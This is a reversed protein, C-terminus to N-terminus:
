WQGQPGGRMMSAIHSGVPLGRDRLKSFLPMGVSEIKGEKDLTRVLQGLVATDMEKPQFGVHANTLGFAEETLQVAVDVRRLRAAGSILNGYAKCDPGGGSAKLQGFVLLAADINDDLLCACMLCSLVPSNVYFNYQQTMTEVAAFAKDLQRRRGWMKVIIGLTFNTPYIRYAELNEVLYEASEFDSARICGDLLTNFIVTDGAGARNSSMEDFVKFAMKLKGTTCYAKVILSTTLDDPPCGDAKMTEQLRMVHDIAGVRAHVDILSNYLSTNMIVKDARMEEFLEM